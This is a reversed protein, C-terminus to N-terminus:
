SAVSNVLKPGKRRKAAKDVVIKDKRKVDTGVHGHKRKTGSPGGVGEVDMAPLETQPEQPVTKVEGANAGFALPELDGTDGAGAGAGSGFALPGLHGSDSTDMPSPSLPKWNWNTTPAGPLQSAQNYIQTNPVQPQAEAELPDMTLAQLHISLGWKAPLYFFRILFKAQHWRRRPVGANDPDNPNKVLWPDIVQNKIDKIDLQKTDMGTGDRSPPIKIRIFDTWREGTPQKTKQDLKKKGRHFLRNYNARVIAEDVPEGEDDVFWKHEVAHKMVAEDLAKMGKCEAENDLNLTVNYTDGKQSKSIGFPIDGGGVLVVSFRDSSKESPQFSAVRNGIKTKYPEKSMYVMGSDLVKDMSYGPIVRNVEIFRKV